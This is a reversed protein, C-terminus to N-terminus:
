VLEDILNDFAIQPLRIEKYEGKYPLSVNVMRYNKTLTIVKSNIRNIFKMDNIPDKFSSFIYVDYQHNLMPIIMEWIREKDKMFFFEDILIKSYSKGKCAEPTGAYIDIGMEDWARQVLYRANDQKCTLILTNKPDKSAEYILRTSKGCQRDGIYFYIM